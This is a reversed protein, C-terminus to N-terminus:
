LHELPIGTKKSVKRAWILLKEFQNDRATQETEYRDIRSVFGDITNVLRDIKKDLEDQRTEINNFRDDVQQAFSAIINSLDTVAESVSAKIDQRIDERFEKRFTDLNAKIVDDRM